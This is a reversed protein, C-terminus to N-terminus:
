IVHGVRMCEERRHPEYCGAWNTVNKGINSSDNQVKWSVRRDRFIHEWQQYDEKGQWSKGYKQTIKVNIHTVWQSSVECNMSRLETDEAEEEAVWGSKAYDQM